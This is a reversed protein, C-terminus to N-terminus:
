FKTAKESFRFKVQIVKACKELSPFDLGHDLVAFRMQLIGNVNEVVSRAGCHQVNYFTKEEDDIAEAVLFPTVM